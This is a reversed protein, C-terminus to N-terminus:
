DVEIANPDGNVFVVRGADNKGVAVRFRPEYSFYIDYVDFVKKREGPNLAFGSWGRSEPIVVVRLASKNVFETVGEDDDTEFPECGIMGVLPLLMAAMLLWKKM